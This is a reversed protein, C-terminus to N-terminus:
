NPPAITQLKRKIDRQLKGAARSKLHTEYFISHGLTPATEFDYGGEKLRYKATEELTDIRDVVIIDGRMCAHRFFEKMAKLVALEDPSAEDSEESLFLKWFDRQTTEEESMMVVSKRRCPKIREDGLSSSRNHQKGGLFEHRGYVDEVVFPMLIERSELVTRVAQLIAQYSGKHVRFRSLHTVDGFYSSKTILKPNDLM